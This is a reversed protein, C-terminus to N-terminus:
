TEIIITNNKNDTTDHIVNYYTISYKMNNIKLLYYSKEIIVFLM